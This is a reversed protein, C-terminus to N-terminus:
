RHAGSVACVVCVVTIGCLDYAHTDRERERKTTGGKLPSEDRCGGDGAAAAIANMEARAYREISM